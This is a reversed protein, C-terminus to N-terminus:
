LLKHELDGSRQNKPLTRELLQARENWVPVNRSRLAITSPRFLTPHGVSSATCKFPYALMLIPFNPVSTLFPSVM